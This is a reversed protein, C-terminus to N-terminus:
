IGHKGEGSWLEEWSDWHFSNDARGSGARAGLERRLKKNRALREICDALALPDFPCLLGNRGDEIEDRNGTCDSVIAACGLALAEQLAISRGEFRTAHVYIDTQAYYPFPNEVAGLLVFDEALGLKARKRELAKREEGEGLVYWRVFVGRKKLLNLAELAMDYGKQYTLRGVTLLRIGWYGDSFGPGEKALEQIGALDVMNPFVRLRSAYEPYLKEFNRKVEGSVAFITSFAKWCNRDMERTYGASEYDVHILAAKKDAKVYDAVYYAAGGEMWAVAMDFGAPFRLAGEAMIRWLLKDLQMRGRKCMDALTHVVYGMKHCLGGNRVFARLVSGIMRRRGRGSLVSMASPRLNLVNVYGPLQDFLEGQGIVAYLFVEYSADHFSRLVQLLLTEAGARGLTNVVFLLSKKDDRRLAREMRLEQRRELLSTLKVSGRLGWFVLFIGCILFAAATRAELGDLFTRVPPLIELLVLLVGTGGWLACLDPNLRGGARLRISILILIIGISPTVALMMRGAEEEQGGQADRLGRVM